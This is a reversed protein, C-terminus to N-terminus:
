VRRLRTDCVDSTDVLVAAVVESLGRHFAEVLTFLVVAASCVAPVALRRRVMFPVEVVGLRGERDPAVVGVKATGAPVVGLRIGTGLGLGDLVCRIDIPAGGTGVSVGLLDIGPKATDVVELLIVSDFGESGPRPSSM